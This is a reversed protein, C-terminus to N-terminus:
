VAAPAAEVTEGAAADTEGAVGLHVRCLQPTMRADLRTLRLPGPVQNLTDRILQSHVRCVLDQDTDVMTAFPCPALDIELPAARLEPEFGSDDLHEYLTDLQHLAEPELDDPSTDINMRRLLEGHRIAQEVRRAAEPNRDRERVPHYTEPPRGRRGVHQTQRTVLGESELVVLHDRVTNEHLGTREALERLLLGPEAQVEALLRLRSPQTLGRFDATRRAM